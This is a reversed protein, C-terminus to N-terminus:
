LFFKQKTKSVLISSYLVIKIKCNLNTHTAIYEEYSLGKEYQVLLKYYLVVTRRTNSSISM